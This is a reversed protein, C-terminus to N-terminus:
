KCYMVMMDNVLEGDTLTFVSLQTERKNFRMVHNGGHMFLIPLCDTM